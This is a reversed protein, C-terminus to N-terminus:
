VLLLRWTSQPPKLGVSHFPISHFTSQRLVQLFAPGTRVAEGGSVSVPRRKGEGGRM